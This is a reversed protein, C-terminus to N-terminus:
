KYLYVPNSNQVVQIVHCTNPNFNGNMVRLATDRYTYVTFDAIKGGDHVIMYRINSM